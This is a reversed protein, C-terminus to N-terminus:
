HPSISASQLAKLTRRLTYADTMENSVCLQLGDVGAARQTQGSGLLLQLRAGAGDVAASCGILATAPRRVLHADAPVPCLVTTTPCWILAASGRQLRTLHVAAGRPRAIVAGAVGPTLSVSCLCGRRCAVRGACLLLLLLWGVTLLRPIGLLGHSIAGGRALPTLWCHCRWCYRLLVSRITVSLAFRASTTNTQKM